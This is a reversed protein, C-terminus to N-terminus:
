TPRAHTTPSAEPNIGKARRIRKRTKGFSGRAFASLDFPQPDARRSDARVLKTQAEITDKSLYGGNVKWRNVELITQTIPM